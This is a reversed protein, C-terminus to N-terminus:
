AAHRNRILSQLESTHEESRVKLSDRSGSNTSLTRSMTPSYRAGGSRARARNTSSFLWIEAEQILWTSAPEALQGGLLDLTADVGRDPLQFGIDPGEDCGVVLPGRGAAPGFGGVVDEGGDFAEALLCVM